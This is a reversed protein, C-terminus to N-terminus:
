SLLHVNAFHNCYKSIYNAYYSSGLCLVRPFHCGLCPLRQARWSRLELISLNLQGNFLTLLNVFYIEISWKIYNIILIICSNLFFDKIKGKYIWCVNETYMYLIDNIFAEISSIVSIISVHSFLQFTRFSYFFSM